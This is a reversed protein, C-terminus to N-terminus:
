EQRGEIATLLVGAALALRRDFRGGPDDFRVELKLIFPNFRQRYIAVPRETGTAADAGENYLTAHYRQPLLFDLSEIYRRLLAKLVSEEQITGTERGDPALITWHDRLFASRVGARRLTGLHEDTQSDHIDYAGAFDFISRTSIRLLETNRSEDTYLRIDDRIRFRKMDSYLALEGGDDYIHYAGGFFRFVKRRITYGPHDFRERYATM